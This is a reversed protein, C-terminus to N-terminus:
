PIIHILEKGKSLAYKVTSATGGEDSFNYVAIVKDSHDVMFKNRIHMCAKHYHDSLIIKEDCYSLIDDYRKKQIPTWKKAQEPCPIAAVLRISPHEEKLSIVLEAAWIDTGLAMGTIFTDVGLNIQRIIENKINQKLFVCDPHSEDFGFAFNQPRHGTFCVTM